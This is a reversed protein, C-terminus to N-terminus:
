IIKPIVREEKMSIRGYRGVIMMLLLLLLFILDGAAEREVVEQEEVLRYFLTDHPQAARSLRDDPQTGRITPSRSLGQGHDPFNLSISLNSLEFFGSEFSSVREMQCEQVLSVENDRLGHVLLTPKCIRRYLTYEGEPWEMGDLVYKMHSPRQEPPESGCYPHQRGRPSYM